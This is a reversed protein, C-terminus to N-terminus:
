FYHYYIKKHNNIGTHRPMHATLASSNTFRKECLKCAFPKEGTHTRMHITLEGSRGMRKGCISCQFNKVGKNLVFHLTVYFNFQQLMFTNIHQIKNSYKGNHTLQHLSLSTTNTFGRNCIKCIFPKEGTHTRLHIQM